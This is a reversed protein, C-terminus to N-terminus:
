EAADAAGGLVEVTRTVSDYSRAGTFSAEWPHALEPPLLHAPWRVSTDRSRALTLHPVWRGPAHLPNLHGGDAALTEWVRRHLAALEPGAAVRWALVGTRGSFRLLGDLRFPTPLGEALLDALAARTAPLLDECTALTLHPRNTPHRHTALSPLGAAAIARWTDRVLLETATDPLLEVTRM